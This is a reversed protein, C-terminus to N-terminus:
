TAVNLHILLGQDAHKKIKVRLRYPNMGPSSIQVHFLKENTPIDLSFHGRGDTAASVLVTQWDSSYLEVKAGIVPEGTGMVDVNGSLGDSVSVKEQIVLENANVPSVVFLFVVGLCSLLKQIQNM